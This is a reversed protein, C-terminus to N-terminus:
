TEAHAGVHVGRGSNELAGAKKLYTRAWALRYAVETGPGEGHLVSQVEEPLDMIEVVKELHEQISASGGIEKLAALAPWMVQDYTPVAISRETM